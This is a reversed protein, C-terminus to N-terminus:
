DGEISQGPVCGWNEHAARIGRIPTEIAHLVANQHPKPVSEVPLILTFCPSPAPDIVPPAPIEPLLEGTSTKAIAFAPSFRKRGTIRQSTRGHNVRQPKTEDKDDPLKGPDTESPDTRPLPASQVPPPDFWVRIAAAQNVCRRRLHLDGGRRVDGPGARRHRNGHVRPVQTVELDKEKPVSPTRGLCFKDYSKMHLSGPFQRPSGM